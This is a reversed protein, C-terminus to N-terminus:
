YRKTDRRYAWRAVLAAGVSWAAIVLWGLRPWASGGLAVHSAQVLWYSPLLQALDHMFGGGTIPFWSGGLLAFLSSAGGVAPGVSDATLLHGIFIGIAAFPVLGILILATMGVWDGFPLSVGLSVGCIYLVAISLCAVLYATVLKARFYAFATLPTIRLQRNWGATREAAIRAGASLMTTMGGFGLIGVMFYLPVSIGTGAIDNQDRNPAVIVLYLIVPFVLSFMLLRRNRVTRLLEYGIYTV